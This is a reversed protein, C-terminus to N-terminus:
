PGGISSRPRRVMAVSDGSIIQYNYFFDGLTTYNDVLSRLLRLLAQFAVLEDFAVTRETSNVTM